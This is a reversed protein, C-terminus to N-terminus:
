GGRAAEAEWWALTRELGHELSTRPAWGVERTLRTVDAVLRPPEDPSAPRAGFKLLRERGMRAGIRSLLARLTMPQGSAVNVPGTVPSDLLAVLADAVDEVYMFDRIQEGHTLPMSQEDMLARIVSPVLRAPQERPGYLYFLRAWATSDVGYQRAFAPLMMSLAGKCAGYVTAPALPTVGEVCREARPDYEFCTGAMVARRGGNAGLESLLRLSADVWTWNLPSTVYAGPTVVWALHLLHSPRVDRLLDSVQRPDLLDARHWTVDPAHRAGTSVAHVEYGRDLLPPLCHSGVFGSAGTVLVRKVPVREVLEPSALKPKVLEPKVLEPKM